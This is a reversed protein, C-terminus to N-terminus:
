IFASCEIKIFGRALILVSEFRGETVNPSIFNMPM